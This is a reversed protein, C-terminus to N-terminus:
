GSLRKAADNRQHPWLLVLAMGGGCLLPTFLCTAIAGDSALTLLRDWRAAPLYLSGPQASAAGLVLPVSFLGLLIVCLVLGLAGEPRTLNAHAGRGSRWWARVFLLTLASSGLLVLTPTVWATHLLAVGLACLLGIIVSGGIWVTVLRRVSLPSHAGTM